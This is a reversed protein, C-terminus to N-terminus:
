EDGIRESRVITHVQSTKKSASESYPISTFPHNQPHLFSTIYKGQPSIVAFPNKSSTTISYPYQKVRAAESSRTGM